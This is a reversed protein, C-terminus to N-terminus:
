ELYEPPILAKAEEMLKDMENKLEKIKEGLEDPNVGLEEARVRLENLEKELYEKNALAKSRDDRANKIATDLHKIQEEYSIEKGM